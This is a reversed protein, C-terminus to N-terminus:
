GKIAVIYNLQCIIWWKIKLVNFMANIWEHIKKLLGKKQGASPLPIWIHDKFDFSRPIPWYNDM